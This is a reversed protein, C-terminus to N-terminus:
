RVGGELIQIFKLLNGWDRVPTSMGTDALGGTQSIHLVFCCMASLMVTFKTGRTMGTWFNSPGGWPAVSTFILDAQFTTALITGAKAELEM